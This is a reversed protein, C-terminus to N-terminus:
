PPDYATLVELAEQLDERSSSGFSLRLHGEGAPGFASGPVLSVGTEGLVKAAVDVSTSAGRYPLFSFIGGATPRWHFFPAAQLASRVIQRREELDRLKDKTWEVYPGRLIAGLLRQAIVPACIAVSDHVKLAEAMLLEQGLLYGLRWGAMGLSKSFSGVVLTVARTKPDHWPHWRARRDFTLKEYTEDIICATNSAACEGAVRRLDDDSAVSGTPNSPNVLVVAACGARIERILAEVDLRFGETEERMAVLRPELGLFQVAFLHDFYYPNTLVVRQSPDAVVTLASFFAQSAGCTLHIQSEHDIRFGRDSFWRACVLKRVDALGPDVSYRHLVPDHLSSAMADLAWSPPGYWPVAQGLRIVRQGDRERAAALAAIRGIPPSAISAVRRSAPIM